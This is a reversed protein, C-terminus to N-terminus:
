GKIAYVLRLSNKWEDDNYIKQVDVQFLSKEQIRNAFSLPLSNLLASRYKTLNKVSNIFKDRKFLKETSFELSLHGIDDTDNEDKKHELVVLFPSVYEDSVDQNIKGLNLCTEKIIKVIKNKTQASHINEKSLALLLLNHSDAYGIGLPLIPLKQNNM